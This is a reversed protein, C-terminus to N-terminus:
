RIRVFNSQLRRVAVRAQALASRLGLNDAVAWIEAELHSPLRSGGRHPPMFVQQDHVREARPISHPDACHHEIQWDLSPRVFGRDIHEAVEDRSIHQADIGDLLAQCWLYGRPNSSDLWPQRSMDTYHLLATEGPVFYELDNWGPPLDQAFGSDIFDGDMIARYSLEANDMRRVLDAISWDLHACDLLMVSLQPKRLRGPRPSVARVPLPMPAQWLDAIDQFVLMDSDLYIARGSYGSLAPIAFRQFSFPTRARLSPDRPLPIELESRQMALHLPVLEVPLSSHRRISFELVRVSLM